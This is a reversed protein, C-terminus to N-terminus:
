NSTGTLSFAMKSKALPMTQYNLPFVRLGEKERRELLRPIEETTIFNSILFDTSILLIAARASEIAKKIRPFWEEGVGIRSDNWLDPLIGELHFVKLHKVLRDKWEEDKYSYSIFITHNNREEM